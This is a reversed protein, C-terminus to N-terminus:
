RSSFLAAVAPNASFVFRHQLQDGVPMYSHVAGYRRAAPDNVLRRSWAEHEAQSLSTVAGMCLSLGCTLDDVIGLEGVARELVDRHHRALQQAGASTSEESRMRERASSFLASDELLELTMDVSIANQVILQSETGLHPTAEPSRAMPPLSIAKIAADTSFLFRNHLRDGITEFVDLTVHRVAGADEYLREAWADRDARSRSSVSGMCLSMGCTLEEVVGQVGAARELANRYHRSLNQAETSKSEDESMRQFAKSFAERTELIPDAKDSSIGGGTIFTSETALFRLASPLGTQQLTDAADRGVPEAACGIPILVAAILACKRAAPFFSTFLRASM